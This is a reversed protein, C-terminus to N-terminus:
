LEGLIKRLNLDRRYDKYKSRRGEESSLDLSVVHTNERFNLKIDMSKTPDLGLEVMEDSTAYSFIHGEPKGSVFVIILYKKDSNM